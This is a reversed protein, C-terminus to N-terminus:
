FKEGWKEWKPFIVGSVYVCPLIVIGALLWLIFKIVKIIIGM